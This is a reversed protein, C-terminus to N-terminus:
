EIIEIGTPRLLALKEMVSGGIGNMMCVHPRMMSGGREEGLEEDEEEEEGEM